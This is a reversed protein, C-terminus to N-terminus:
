IMWLVSSVGLLHKMSRIQIEIPAPLHQNIPGEVVVVVAMAEQRHHPFLRHSLWEKMKAMVEEVVLAV